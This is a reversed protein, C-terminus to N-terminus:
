TESPNPMKLPIMQQEPQQKANATALQVQLHALSHPTIAIRSTNQDCTRVVKAHKEYQKTAQTDQSQGGARALGAQKPMRAATTKPRLAIGEAAHFRALVWIALSCGFRLMRGFVVNWMLFGAGQDLFTFVLGYVLKAKCYRLSRWCTSCFILFFLYQTAM